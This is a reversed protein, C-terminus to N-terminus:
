LLFASLLMVQEARGSTPAWSGMAPCLAPRERGCRPQRRRCPTCAYRICSRRCRVVPSDQQQEPRECGAYPLMAAGASCIVQAASSCASCAFQLTGADLRPSTRTILRIPIIGPRRCRIFFGVVADEEVLKVRRVLLGHPLKEGSASPGTVRPRRPALRAYVGAL